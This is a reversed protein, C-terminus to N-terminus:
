RERLDPEPRESRRLRERMDVLVTHAFSPWARTDYGGGGTAYRWRNDFCYRDVAERDSLGELRQLVMVMAVVSPPVSAAAGSRSSTPSRRTPFLRDRERHIFVYISREDLAEECFRISTM